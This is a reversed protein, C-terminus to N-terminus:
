EQLYKKIAAEIADTMTIGRQICWLHFSRKLDKSIKMSISERDEERQEQASNQPAQAFSRQPPFYQSKNAPLVDFNPTLLSRTSTDAKPQEFSKQHDQSVQENKSPAILVDPEPEVKVLDATLEFKPKAM